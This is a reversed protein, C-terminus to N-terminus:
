GSLHRGGRGSYFSEFSHWKQQNVGKIEGFLLSGSLRGEVPFGDGRSSGNRLHAAKLQAPHAAQLFVERCRPTVQKRRNQSITLASCGAVLDHRPVFWRHAGTTNRLRGPAGPHLEGQCGRVPGDWGSSLLEAQENHRASVVLKLNRQM